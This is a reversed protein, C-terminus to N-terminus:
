PVLELQQHVPAAAEFYWGWSRQVYSAWVCEGTIDSTYCSLSDSWTLTEGQPRGPQTSKIREPLDGRNLQQQIVTSIPTM